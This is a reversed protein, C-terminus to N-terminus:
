RKILRLLEHEEDTLRVSIRVENRGSDNVYNFLQRDVKQIKNNKTEKINEWSKTNHSFIRSLMM